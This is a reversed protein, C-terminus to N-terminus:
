RKYKKLKSIADVFLQKEYIIMGFSYMIIGYIVTYLGGKIIFNGWGSGPIYRIGYGFILIIIFALVTKHFLEIFFRIIGLKMVKYYFINMVNQAILWGIATGSIMGISGYQKAMFFGILTGIALFVLYTVSKFAVKNQAEILPGTFGQVLPITYVIMIILAIVYANYYSEGVWLFVFQKGYLLFAGFIYILVIFSVRGVKIMMNTLEESSSQNVTMQTARPLFVSTIASSFAGYYGGLTLGVAYVALVETKSINGLVIHGAKWQFQAVIGYVFIWVSYSFIQKLYDFNFDYLKFRVKLKAFVYYIHIILITINFITDVIVLAIAKGGMTLVAVVTLTRLVYRFINITKPFVFEEYGICIARFSGGPLGIALNIILLIFIIKAIEIEESDMKTFYSELYGYFIYGIILVVLSIAGYILMTTALFNEESKRDKEAKYKAVFRVITNNLGLDLVSITGILAGISTYIGYESKGLHSLIFPTIFLGVVNTLFITVYNLFAGKKLQSM